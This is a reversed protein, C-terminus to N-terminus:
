VKTVLDKKKLSERQLFKSAVSYITFKAFLSIALSVESFYWNRFFSVDQKM